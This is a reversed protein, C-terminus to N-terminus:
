IMLVIDICFRTLIKVDFYICRYIKRNEDMLVVGVTYKEM